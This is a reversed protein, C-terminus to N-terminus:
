KFSNSSSGNYMFKLYIGAIKRSAIKGTLNSLFVFHYRPSSLKIVPFFEFQGTIILSILNVGTYTVISIHYIIYSLILMLAHM